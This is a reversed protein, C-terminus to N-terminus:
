VAQYNIKAWLKRSGYTWFNLYAWRATEYSLETAADIAKMFYGPIFDENFLSAEFFVSPDVLLVQGYPFFTDNIIPLEGSNGYNFVLWSHGVGLKSKYDANNRLASSTLTVAQSYKDYVDESVKFYKAKGFKKFKNYLTKFDQIINTANAKDLVISKMWPTTSRVKTQLTPVFTGDDILGFIGMPVKGWENSAITGRVVYWTDANTGGRNNAGVAAWVTATATLKLTTEDVVTEITRAIATGGDLMAKTGFLVPEGDMFEDTGLGYINHSAFTGPARGSVVISTWTQVGVDGPLAGSIGTGDWRLHRSKARAMANRIEESYDTSANIVSSDSSTVAVLQVHTLVFYARVFKPALESKGFVSGSKHLWGAEWGAYATMWGTKAVIEFKNNNMKEVWPANEGGVAVIDELMVDQTDIIHDSKDKDYILQERLVDKFYDLLNM